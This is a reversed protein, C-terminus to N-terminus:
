TNCKIEFEIPSSKIGRSYMLKKIGSNGPGINVSTIRKYTNGTAIYKRIFMIEGYM